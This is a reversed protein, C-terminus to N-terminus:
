YSLDVTIQNLRSEHDCSSSDIFQATFYHTANFFRVVCDYRGTILHKTQALGSVVKVFEQKPMKITLGAEQWQRPLRRSLQMRTAIGADSLDVVIDGLGLKCQRAECHALQEIEKKTTEGLTIDLPLQLMGDTNTSLDFYGGSTIKTDQDPTPFSDFRGALAETAILILCLYFYKKM